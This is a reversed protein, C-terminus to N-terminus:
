FGKEIPLLRSDELAATRHGAGALYGKDSAFELFKAASKHKVLLVVDWKEDEPGILFSHSKGQYIVESGASKLFHLTHKMYLQYAEKGSIKNTPALEPSKSYDAFERFKLLNLMVVSGESKKTFFEKGAEQTVDLYTKKEM